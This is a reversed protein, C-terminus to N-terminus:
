GDRDPTSVPKPRDDAPVRDDPVRDAEPRDDAPGCVTPVGAEPRHDGPGPVTLLDLQIHSRDV